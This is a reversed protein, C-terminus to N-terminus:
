KNIAMKLKLWFVNQEMPSKPWPLYVVSKLLVDTTRDMIEKNIKSLIIPVVLNHGREISMQQALSSEYQCWTSSLFSNSLVLVVKYSDTMHEAICSTIYQGPTFDRRYFCLKFDNEEELHPLLHDMVWNEDTEHCAIFADYKYIKNNQKWKYLLTTKYKIYLLHYRYRYALTVCVTWFIALAFCGISLYLFQRSACLFDLEDTLEALHVKSEVTVASGNQLM